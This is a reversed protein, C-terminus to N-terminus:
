TTESSQRAEAPPRAGEAGPGSSRPDEAFRQELWKQVESRRWRLGLGPIQAGQPILGRARAKRVSEPTSRLMDALDQTSLLALDGAASQRRRSTRSRDVMFPSVCDARLGELARLHAIDAVQDM